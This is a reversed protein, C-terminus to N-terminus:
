RSYTKRQLLPYWVRNGDWDGWWLALPTNNPCNRYTFLLAGFGLGEFSSIGLPKWYKKTKEENFTSNIKLGALTFEEELIQRNTESSFISEECYYGKSQSIDRLKYKPQMKLYEKVEPYDLTKEIPSLTHSYNQCNSNNELELLRWFTIKMNNINNDKMWKKSTFYHGSKYYGVYIIDLKSKKPAKKFWTSLDHRVRSGSFLFDDIYIFHRKSNNNIDVYIGIEKYILTKMKEVMVNQSNGDTQIQLLSVNKWFEKPNDNTLEKNTILGKLFNDVEAETLYRQNCVHIMEELITKQNKKSFQEVWNKVNESTPNLNENKRYDKFIEALEKTLKKM